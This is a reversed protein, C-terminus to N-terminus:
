LPQESEIRILEAPTPNVLHPNKITLDQEPYKKAAVHFKLQVSADAGSKVDLALDGPQTALPIGAIAYWHGADQLVMIRQHDMNVVPVTASDPLQVVAVGGPVQDDKPLGSAFGLIPILMLWMLILRKM